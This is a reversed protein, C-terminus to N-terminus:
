QSTLNGPKRLIATLVGTSKTNDDMIRNMRLNDYIKNKIVRELHKENISEFEPFYDYIFNWNLTQPETFTPLKHIDVILLFIGGAKLTRKIEQCAKEPNDLHDLSNFASIVDFYNDAFPINEAYGKVYKMNHTNAGMKLYKDVLPDLGIREKAMLAWELSGRPGCGIDLITKNAYFSAELSFYTTYFYEYHANRLGKQLYRTIKWYTLEFFEKFVRSM